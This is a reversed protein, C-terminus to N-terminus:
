VNCILQKRFITYEKIFNNGRCVPCFPFMDKDYLDSPIRIDTQCDKCHIHVSSIETKLSTPAKELIQDCDSVRHKEKCVPCTFFSKLLNPTNELRLYKGCTPCEIKIESM